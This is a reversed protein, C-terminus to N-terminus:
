WLLVWPFPLYNSKMFLQNGEKKFKEALEKNIEKSQDEKNEDLVLTKKTETKIAKTTKNRLINM